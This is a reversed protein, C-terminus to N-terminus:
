RRKEIVLTSSRGTDTLLHVHDATNIMIWFGQYSAETTAVRHQLLSRHLDEITIGPGSDGIWIQVVGRAPDGLVRAIGSGGMAHVTVNNAAEGVAVLLDRRQDDSLGCARGVADTYARLRWLTTQYIPIMGDTIDIEEDQGSPDLARPHTTDRGQLLAPDIPALPEPLESEQSCLRLIGNTTLLLEDRLLARNKALLAERQDEQDIHPEGAIRAIQEELAKRETIDISSGLFGLFQEQKDESFRPTLKALVWRWAGDHRRLRFEMTCPQHAEYFTRHTTLFRSRDEPHLRDLWLTGIAEQPALGTFTLWARNFWNRRGDGGNSTWVMAPATDMMTRFRRDSVRWREQRRDQLRPRQQLTDPTGGASATKSGHRGTRHSNRLRHVREMDSFYVIVANDDRVGALEIACPILCVLLWRSVAISFSEYTSIEREAVAREFYHRFPTAVPGDATKLSPFLAWVSQGVIQERPKGLIREAEANVFRYTGDRDFVAIGDPSDEAQHLMDVALPSASPDAGTVQLPTRSAPLTGGESFAGGSADIATTERSEDSFSTM